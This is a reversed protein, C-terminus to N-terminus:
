AHTVDFLDLHVFGVTVGNDFLWHKLAHLLRHRLDDIDRETADALRDDLWDLVGDEDLEIGPPPDIVTRGVRQWGNLDSRLPVIVTLAHRTRRRVGQRHAQQQEMLRPTLTLTKHLQIHQGNWQLWEGDVPCHEGQIEMANALTLHAQQHELTGHVPLLHQPEVWTYFTHLEDQAPHGSAHLTPIHQEDLVNIDRLRLAKCVTGIAEENGPIIKSSFIVSDGPELDLDRHRQQAMRAVAAQPEGQSGTALVLVEEKPLYGIDKMPVPTPFDTLYGLVRAIQIMRQMARGAIAIRRGCAQAAQATAHIRALNSAFCSVVVRGKCQAITNKLTEAVVAESISHGPEMANTSDGVVLSIPALARFAEESSAPGLLPAPDIKWDGTHLVRHAPTTLLLACSEPISHTVPLSRLTFEGAEFAEGPQFTKIAHTSLGRESFRYRLMAAVLPTAWIACGWHPWLWTIAGIHDEHGHTIVLADPTIGEKVLPAIDPMQVPTGPLDQRLAMGCDIAVWSSAHGYLTLNMGIEGCGGLFLIDLPPRQRPRIQVQPRNMTSDIPLPHELIGSEAPEPLM